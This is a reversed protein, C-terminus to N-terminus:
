ALELSLLQLVQLVILVLCVQAARDSRDHPIHIKREVQLLDAERVEVFPLHRFAEAFEAEIRM